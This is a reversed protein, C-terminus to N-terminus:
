QRLRGKTGEIVWAGDVVSISRIVGLGSLSGGVVVTQMDDGGPPAVWAVGPQIARIEWRPAVPMRPSSRDTEGVSRPRSSAPPPTRKSVGSAGGKRPEEKRRTSQPEPASSLSIEKEKRVAAGALDKQLRAISEKLAAIESDRAGEPAPVTQAKKSVAELRSEIQSLRDELGSLTKRIEGLGQDSAAPAQLSSASLPVAPIVEQTKEHIKASVPDEEAVPPLDTAPVAAKPEGARSLDSQLVEEVPVAPVMGGKSVSLDKLNEGSELTKTEGQSPLGAVAKKKRFPALPDTGEAQSPEVGADKTVSEAAPAPLVPLPTLVDGAPARPLSEDKKASEDTQTLPALPEEQMVGPPPLEPTPSPSALETQPPLEPLRQPESKRVDKFVPNDTMGSMQLRSVPAVVQASQLSAGRKSMQMLVFGGGFVVALTIVIANFSLLGKKKKQPPESFDGEETEGAEGGEDWSSDDLDEDAVDDLFADTGDELGLDGRDSGPTKGKKDSIEDM